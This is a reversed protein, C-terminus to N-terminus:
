PKPWRGTHDACARAALIQDKSKGSPRVIAIHGPKSDNHNKYAVVVLFGRNAARQAERGDPLPSWGFAGGQRTALRVPRQGLSDSRARAAAPHLCGAAQRGLGRLRQLPYAQGRLARGQWRPHRKGLGHARGRPGAARWRCATSSSASGTDTTRIEAPSGPLPPPWCSCVLSRLGAEQCSRAPASQVILRSSGCFRM